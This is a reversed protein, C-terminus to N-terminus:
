YSACNILHEALRTPNWARQKRYSLCKATSRSKSGIIKDRREWWTRITRAPIKWYASAEASTPPRYITGDPMPEINVCAARARRRQDDMVQHHILFQIVQIKRERSYSREIRSVPKHQKYPRESLPTSKPGPRKKSSSAHRANSSIEQLPM